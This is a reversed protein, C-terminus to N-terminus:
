SLQLIRYKLFWSELKKLDIQSIAPLIDDYRQKTATKDARMM